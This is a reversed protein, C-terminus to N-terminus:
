MSKKFDILHAYFIYIYIYSICLIMYLITHTRDNNMDNRLNPRRWHKRDGVEGTRITAVRALFSATVVIAYCRWFMM